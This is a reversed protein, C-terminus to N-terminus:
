ARLVPVTTMALFTLSLLSHICSPLIRLEDTKHLFGETSTDMKLTSLNSGLGVVVLLVALITKKSNEFIFDALQEFKQETKLRWNMTM